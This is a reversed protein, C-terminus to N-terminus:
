RLTQGQVWGIEADLLEAAARHLAEMEDRQDGRLGLRACHSLAEHVADLLKRTLPSDERWDFGRTGELLQFASAANFLNRWSPDGIIAQLNPILIGDAFRDARAEDMAIADREEPTIYGKIDEESM